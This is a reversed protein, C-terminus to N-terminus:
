SFLLCPLFIFLSPYLAIIFLITIININFYSPFSPVWTYIHSFFLKPLHFPLYFSGTTLSHKIDELFLLSDLPWILFMYHRYAMTFIKSCQFLYFSGTDSLSFFFSFSFFSFCLFSPLFLLSPSLISILLVGLLETM